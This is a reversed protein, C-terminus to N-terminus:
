LGIGTDPAQRRPWRPRYAAPGDGPGPPGPLDNSATQDDGPSTAQAPPPAAQATDGTDELAALQTDIDALRARLETIQPMLDFAAGIRKAARAAEGEAHRAADDAEQARQGLGALRNELRTVLGVPSAARLEGRTFNAAWGPLGAFRLEGYAGGPDRTAHLEVDHGGLHGVVDVHRAGLALRDLRALAERQLAAGADPRKNHRAGAVVMTFRDGATPQRRSDAARYAAAESRLREAHRQSSTETRALSAQDRNHAALQRELRVLDSAVGARQMILPNGTALAKVEAYSLAADGIDDISRGTVDRRMVQDIFTAKRQVAQWNFVDFSSQAAYRLIHIQDNQNGQRIGRGDRQEISAPWWPCDLHHIAIMRAQVNVGVGMKDTSGILVSV